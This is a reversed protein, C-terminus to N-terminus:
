AAAHLVQNFLAMACPAMTMVAALVMYFKSASRSSAAQYSDCVAQANQHPNM